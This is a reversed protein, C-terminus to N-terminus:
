IGGIHAAGTYVVSIDGYHSDEAVNIADRKMRAPFTPASVMCECAQVTRAAYEVKCDVHVREGYCEVKNDVHMREGYCHYVICVYMCM